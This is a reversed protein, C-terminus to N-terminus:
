AAPAEAPVAGGAAGGKSMESVAKLMPGDVKDMMQSMVAQKQQAQQQQAIEEETPILGETEIGLATAVRAAFDQPKMYQAVIEPGFTEKMINSFERLKSLDHGRGLAELGTVIVPKVIGKPLIPLRKDQQMQYLMRNVLPLQLDQSLLSYVGGLADELERAMYRIEEATVREGQRQVATNMLFAMSLDRKLDAAQERAVRLDHYKEAQLVSVDEAKGERIAGNPAEALVKKNTVGNPDVLFLLKASAASGEGITQSLGELQLLDGMYEEIYGRGYDQGDIRILRLPFWPSKDLAYGGQSGPVVIGKVEQYQRWHDGHRKVHTYLGCVKHDYEASDENYKQQILTRVNEPLVSPSVDEKVIIELVEGMPSRKVVYRDLHFVRLGKPTLYPLINGGVILHKLGEFLPSRMALAEVEDMGAREIKGLATEIKTKFNPAQAMRAATFEEIKFRWFPSNPPFLALLLKSALNNTGRAGLSQHPTYLKSEANFGEPPILSPITIESCQRARDLFPRRFEELQLYRTEAVGVNTSLSKEDAM